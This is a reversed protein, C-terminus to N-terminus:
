FLILLYRQRSKESNFVRGSDFVKGCWSKGVTASGSPAVVWIPWFVVPAGLASRALCHSRTPRLGMQSAVLHGFDAKFSCPRLVKGAAMNRLRLVARLRENTGCWSKGVTASGSPAVVWIPWFVVPAGLASRALCHSRTPRLGMQSAVLHGFDAKFSCPRLVKGAAM